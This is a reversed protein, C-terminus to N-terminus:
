PQTWFDIVHLDELQPGVLEGFAQHDPHPLYAARDEESDFTLIYGHTFGKDFTEPSNNLGWEFGKIEPIKAPLAAFADEIERIQAPTTTEKFKFLVIHRLQKDMRTSETNGSCAMFLFAILFVFLYNPLKLLKMDLLITTPSIYYLVSTGHILDEDPGPCSVSIVCGNCSGGERSYGDEGEDM